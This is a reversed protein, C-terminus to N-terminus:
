EKKRRSALYGAGAALAGAGLMGLTGPEPVPAFRVDINYVDSNSELSLPIITNHAAYDRVDINSHATDLVGNKYVDAWINAPFDSTGVVSFTLNGNLLSTINRGQMETHYPVDSLSDRVDVSLKTPDSGNPAITSFFDVFPSSTSTYTYPSDWGNDYGSTFKPDNPAQFLQVVPSNSINANLQIYDADARGAGLLAGAAVAVGGFVRSVLNPKKSRRREM